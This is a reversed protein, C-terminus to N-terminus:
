RAESNTCFIQNGELLRSNQFISPLPHRRLWSATFGKSALDRTLNEPSSMSCMNDCSPAPPVVHTRHAEASLPSQFTAGAGELSQGTRRKDKSAKSRTSESYCVEARLMANHQIRCTRRTFAWVRPHGQLGGSCVPAHTKLFCTSLCYQFSM